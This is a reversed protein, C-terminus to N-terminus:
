AFVMLFVSITLSNRNAVVRYQVSSGFGIHLVANLLEGHVTVIKALGDTCFYLLSASTVAGPFSYTSGLM